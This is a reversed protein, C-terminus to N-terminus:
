NQSIYVHLRILRGYCLEAIVKQIYIEEEIRALKEAIAEAVIHSIKSQERYTIKKLGDYLETPITISMKKYNM